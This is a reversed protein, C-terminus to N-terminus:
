ERWVVRRPLACMEDLANMPFVKPVCNKSYHAITGDCEACYKRKGWILDRKVSNEGQFITLLWMSNHRTLLFGPSVCSHQTQHPFGSIRLITLHTKLDSRDCKQQRCMIEDNTGNFISDVSRINIEIDNAINQVKIHCDQFVVTRVQEIVNDNRSSSLKESRPKNDM